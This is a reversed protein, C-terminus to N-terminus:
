NKSSPESGLNDLFNCYRLIKWSFKQTKKLDGKFFSGLEPSRFVGLFVGLKKILLQLTNKTQNLSKNGNSDKYGYEEFIQYKEHSKWNGVFKETCRM